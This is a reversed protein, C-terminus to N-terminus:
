LEHMTERITANNAVISGKEGKRRAITWAEWVAFVEGIRRGGGRSRESEKM